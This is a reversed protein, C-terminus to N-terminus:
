SKVSWLRERAAKLFSARDAPASVYEALRECFNDLSPAEASAKQVLM